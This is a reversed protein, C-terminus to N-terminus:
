DGEGAESGPGIGGSPGESPAEEAPPTEEHGKAKGPPEPPEAPPKTEEEEEEEEEPLTEEPEVKKPKKEKKEPEEETSETTEPLTEEVTDETTEECTGVVENLRAAAKELAEKLEPDIGQLSEVQASVELAADQADVCENEDVLQQVSDVNEGIEQATNGPLLKADSGPGCSALALSAVVGIGLALAYAALRAM